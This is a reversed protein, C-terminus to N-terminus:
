AGEQGPQPQVPPQLGVVVPQVTFLRMVGNIVSLAFAAVLYVSVPLLPQLVHFSAEIVLLVGAIGNVWMVLSARKLKRPRGAAARRRAALQQGPARVIWVVLGILVALLLGAGLMVWGILQAVAGMYFHGRSRKMFSM